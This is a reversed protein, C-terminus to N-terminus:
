SICPYHCINYVFYNLLHVKFGMIYDVILKVDNELILAYYLHNLFFVYNYINILINTPLLHDKSIIRSRNNNIIDIFHCWILM